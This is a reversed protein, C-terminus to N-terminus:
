SECGHAASYDPRAVYLARAAAEKCGYTGLRTWREDTMFSRYEAVWSGSHEDQYLNEDSRCTFMVSMRGVMIEIAM